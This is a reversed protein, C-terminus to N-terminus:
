ALIKPRIIERLAILLILLMLAGELKKKKKAVKVQPGVSQNIWLM